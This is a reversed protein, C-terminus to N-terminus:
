FDLADNDNGAISILARWEAPTMNASLFQVSGDVFAANTGGTHPLRIDPSSGPVMTEDADQPAMWHVAHESAVEIVMLTRSTGDTIESLLRPEGPQFCGGPTVIAMYATSNPTLDAAPCRFVSPVTKYATANAPDHWPKSLDISKYLEQQEIYPLILTRWSHLPKGDEDFTCAPPLAHYTDMYNHLALAIQKLNNKCQTRHAAPRARRTAPLLFAILIVILGLVTFLRLFTFRRRKKLDPTRSTSDPIEYPNDIM